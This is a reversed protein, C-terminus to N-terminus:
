LSTMERISASQHLVDILRIVRTFNNLNVGNLTAYETKNQKYHSTHNTYSRYLIAKM